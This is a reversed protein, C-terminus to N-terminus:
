LIYPLKIFEGGKKIYVGELDQAQAEDWVRLGLAIFRTVVDNPTMGQAEAIENLRNYRENKLTLNIRKSGESKSREIREVM